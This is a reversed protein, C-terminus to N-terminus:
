GKGSTSKARLQSQMQLVMTEDKIKHIIYSFNIVYNQIEM